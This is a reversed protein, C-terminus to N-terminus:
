PSLEREVRRTWDRRKKAIVDGNIKITKGLLEPSPMGLQLLSQPVDVTKNVPIYFAEELLVKQAQPSIIWNLFEQALRENGGAVPGATTSSLATGEDPITFRVPYGAQALPLVRVSGHVGVLYEGLQIKEELKASSPELTAVCGRLKALKAISEPVKDIDGGALLVLLNLTYSVSPSLMGMSHCFEPRFIDSWSRPPSWNRKQFEDKNFFFGTFNFGIPVSDNTTFKAEPRLDDYNTMIALDLKALLGIRSAGERVVDDLMVVDYEPRNRTAAVKAANESTTGPVWRITVGFKQEFGAMAKRYVNDINGGFSAVTLTQGSYQAHAPAMPLILSTAAILGLLFTRAISVGRKAKQQKVM